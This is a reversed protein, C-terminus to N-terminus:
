SAQLVGDRIITANGANVTANQVFTWLPDGLGSRLTGGSEWNEGFSIRLAGAGYGAYPLEGSPLAGALLPNTGIVIEAIKDIDGGYSSWLKQFSADDGDAKASIVVGGHIVMRVRTPNGAVTVQTVLVGRASEHKPIVRLAGGPHEIERDRVAVANTAREKPLDGDSKHFWANGAVEIELDTGGFSTIRLTKGRVQEIIRDMIRSMAPYDAHIIAHAYLKSLYVVDEASRAGLMPLVFHCHVCRARSANLLREWRLDPPQNRGPLVLLLDVREFLPGLMDDWAKESKKVRNYDTLFPVELPPFTIRVVPDVGASRLALEAETALEPYYSPDILLVAREGMQPHLSAVITRAVGAFDIPPFEVLGEAVAASQSRTPMSDDARAGVGLLALASAVTGQVLSRRSLKLAKETV